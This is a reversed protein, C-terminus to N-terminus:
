PEERRFFRGKKGCMWWFINPTMREEICCAYKQRGSVRDIGKKKRLCEVRLYYYSECKECLNM